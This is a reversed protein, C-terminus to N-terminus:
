FFVYMKMPFKYFFVCVCVQEVKNHTNVDSYLASPSNDGALVKVNYFDKQERDFVVLTTINGTYPDITFLDRHDMLEYTVQNHASTGDGDLARVQMVPTGPPESELVSGSVLETFAPINDNVDLITCTIKTEAALNYKNQVRVTLLYESVSEYDLYRGLKIFATTNEQRMTFTNMKNTQETKGQVLEYILEPEDPINSRFILILASM